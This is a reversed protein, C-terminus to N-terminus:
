VTTVTKDFLAEHLMGTANRNQSGTSFWEATFYIHTTAGNTEAQLHATSSEEHATITVNNVQAEVWAQIGELPYDSTADVEMHTVSEMTAQPHEKITTEGESDQTFNRPTKSPGTGATTDVASQDVSNGTRNLLESTTTNIEIGLDTTAELTDDRTTYAQTSIESTRAIGHDEDTSPLPASTNIDVRTDKTM